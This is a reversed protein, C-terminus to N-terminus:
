AKRQKMSPGSPSDCTLFPMYVSNRAPATPFCYIRSLAPRNATISVSAEPQPRAGKDPERSQELHASLRRRRTPQATATLSGTRM